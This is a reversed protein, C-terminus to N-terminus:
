QGLVNTCYDPRTWRRRGAKSGALRRAEPGVELGADVFDGAGDARVGGKAHSQAQGDRGGVRTLSEHAM